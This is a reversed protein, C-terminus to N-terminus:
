PSLFHCSLVYWVPGKKFKGEEFFDTLSDAEWLPIRDGATFTFYYKGNAYTIFPDPTAQSTIDLCTNNYNPQQM